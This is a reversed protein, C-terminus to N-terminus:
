GESGTKFEANQEAAKLKEDWKKDYKAEWYTQGNWIEGTQLTCNDYGYGYDLSLYFAKEVENEPEGHGEKYIQGLYWVAEGHGQEAALRLCKIAQEYDQPQDCDGYKFHMGTAVLAPAYGQEAAKLRGEKRLWMLAPAYGQEAAKEFCKLGLNGDEWGYKLIGLTFGKFTNNSIEGFGYAKGLEFLAPAYGQKVSAFFLSRVMEADAPKYNRHMYNEDDQWKKAYFYALHFQASADGKDALTKLGEVEEEKPLKADGKWNQKV